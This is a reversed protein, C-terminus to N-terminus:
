EHQHLLYHVFPEQLALHPRRLPTVPHLLQCPLQHLQIGLRLGCELLQDLPHTEGAGSSAPNCPNPNPTQVPTIYGGASYPPM